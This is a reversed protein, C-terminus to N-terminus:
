KILTYINIFILAGIISYLFYKSSFIDDNKVNKKEDKKITTFRQDENKKILEEVSKHQKQIIKLLENIQINNSQIAGSLVQINDIISNLQTQEKFYTNLQEIIMALEKLMSFIKDINNDAISSEELLNNLIIFSETLGKLVHDSTFDQNQKYNILNHLEDQINQLEDNKIDGM